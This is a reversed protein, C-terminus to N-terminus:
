IPFRLVALVGGVRELGAHTLVPVVAGGDSIVRECMAEGLEVEHTAGGCRRCAPADDEELAACGACRRGRRNFAKLLYLRHVAGRAVAGLTAALGAVARGHKAAETLASEVETAGRSEELIRILEIARDAIVNSGEFRAGAVSGIIAADLGRPLHQRFAAISRSEGALVIRRVGHEKVLQAVSEVVAEFHRGRQEQIHRQYRSQALLAWGGQRHHGPVDAALRVEGGAGAATLPVLRASETDIFVVLASPASEAALTLPRLFPGQAVVFADEFPRHVPLIERLGLARCTFLAVGRADPFRGQAILADGEREIWAFDDPDVGAGEIERARALENKLFIRVRERQHEDAWRTNLYVSLVSRTAGRMRALAEIQEELSVGNPRPATM